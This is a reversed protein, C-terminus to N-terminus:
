AKVSIKDLWKYHIAEWYNYGQLTKNWVFSARIIISSETRDLYEFFSDKTDKYQNYNSVFIEFCTEDVLFLILERQEEKTM